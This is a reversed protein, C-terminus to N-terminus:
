LSPTLTSPSIFVFNKNFIKKLKNAKSADRIIRFKISSHPSSIINELIEKAEDSYTSHNKYFNEIKQTTRKDYQAEIIYDGFINIVLGLNNTKNNFLPKDLMCYKSTRGDFDKQLIKDLSTKHGVTFLYAINKSEMYAKLNLEESRRALLFWCHSSYAYWRDTKPYADFLVYLVHNWFVDVQVPNKFTYSIKDGDRMNLFHGSDLGPNRYSHSTLLVFKELKLLWAQNIMVEKKEIIVINLTKLNRLSKYIGQITFDGGKMLDGILSQVKIPGGKLKQIIQQGLGIPPFYFM